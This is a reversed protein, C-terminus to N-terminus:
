EPLGLASIIRVVISDADTGEVMISADGPTLLYLAGDSGSVWTVQDRQIREGNQVFGTAVSCLSPREGLANVLAMRTEPAVSWTGADIDAQKVEIRASVQRPRPSPSDHLRTLMAVVPVLNDVSTLRCRLMEGQLRNLAALHVNDTLLVTLLPDPDAAVVLATLTAESVCHMLDALVKACLLAGDDGRSVLGREIMANLLGSETCSEVTPVGLGHLLGSPLRIGLIEAAIGLETATVDIGRIGANGHSDLTPAM